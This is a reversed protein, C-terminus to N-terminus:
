LMKEIEKLKKRVLSFNELHKIKKEENGLNYRSRLMMLDDIDEGAEFLLGKCRFRNCYGAVICLAQSSSGCTERGYKMRDNLPLKLRRFHRIM